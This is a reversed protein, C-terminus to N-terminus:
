ANAARPARYDTNRGRPDVIWEPNPLRIKKGKTVMRKSFLAKVRNYCPGRFGETVSNRGILWELYDGDASLAMLCSKFEEPTLHTATPHQGIVVQRYIWVCITLNLNNWLRYCSEEKGWADGALRMFAICKEAEEVRLSEAIGMASRGEAIPVDGSSGFFARLLASMGIVPSNTGRRIHDYGVFPLKRRILKLADSSEELARLTDDPRIRAIQGNLEVFTKGMEAMSDFQMTRINAIGEGKVLEPSAMLYAERRHQGDLLYIKSQFIGLTIVGPIEGGDDKIKQAVEKLKANVRLARQFPPRNWGEVIKKTVIEISMKSGAM